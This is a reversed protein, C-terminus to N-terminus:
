AGASFVGGRKDGMGVGFNLKVRYVFGLVSMDMRNFEIMPRQQGDVFGVNVVAAGSGAGAFLGWITKSTNAMKSNGFYSCVVPKYLGEHPNSDGLIADTSGATVIRQSNYLQRSSPANGPGVLLVTPRVLIPLGDSGTQERFLQEAATLSDIGLASSAGTLYNKNGASFFPSGDLQNKLLLNVAEFEITSAASHGMMTPLETFAGIDDNKIRREDLAIRKAFTDAQVSQAEDALSGHPVEGDMPVRELIGKDSIRVMKHPRFDRLSKVACFDQWSTESAEYARLLAKNAVNGFLNPLSSTSFSGSANIVPVGANYAAHIFDSSAPSGFRSPDEGSAAIGDRLAAQIGYGHFRPEDAMALTRDDFFRTLDDHSFGAAICLAAEITNGLNSNREGSEGRNRGGPATPRSRRMAELELKEPTWGDTLAQAQLDFAVRTDLGPYKALIEIRERESLSSATGDDDATPLETETTMESAGKAAIAVKTESDSGVGVFSTERWEFGYVFIAPGTVNRGNITGSERPRLMRKLGGTGGVSLQWSHGQRSADVIERTHPNDVTFRGDRVILTAQERDPNHQGITKEVNHDRLAPQPASFTATEIDIFVHHEFNPLRLPGGSYAVGSYTGPKKVEGGDAFDLSASADIFEIDNIAETESM